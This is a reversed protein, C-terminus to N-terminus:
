MIQIVFSFSTQVFFYLNAFQFISIVFNAQYYVNVLVLISILYQQHLWTLIQMMSQCTRTPIRWIIAANKLTNLVISCCKKRHCIFTCCKELSVCIHTPHWMGHSVYRIHGWNFHILPSASMDTDTPNINCEYSGVLFSKKSFSEIIVVSKLNMFYNMRIKCSSLSSM